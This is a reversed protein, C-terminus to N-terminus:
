KNLNGSLVDVLKQGCEEIHEDYKNCNRACRKVLDVWRCIVINKDQQNELVTIENETKPERVTCNVM